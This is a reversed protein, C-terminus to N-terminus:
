LEIVLDELPYSACAHVIGLARDAQRVCSSIEFTKGSLVRVRCDACEGTHCSSRHPLGNRELSHLLPEGVAASFSRQGVVEIRVRRSAPLDAPWGPTRTVDAPPGYLERRLKHRPVGLEALAATALEVMPIPGCILATRGQLDGALARIQAADLLGTPGQHDPGPESVVLRYRFAEHAAALARLEGGFIVDGAVRSGYLLDLPQPWGLRAQHRIMSMFPTIGSGGAILLPTGRDTLPEHVFSGAPGTSTVEWGAEAREFLFPSVFGDAALRVTLDLHDVGPPSSISYARTTRVEGVTLALSLYQGPRFPPLPGDTRECRFTRTSPTEQRVEAVRLRMSRPHLATVTRYARDRHEDSGYDPGGPPALARVRVGGVYRSLDEFWSRLDTKM